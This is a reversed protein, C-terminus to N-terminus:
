ATEGTMPHAKFFVTQFDPWLQWCFWIIALSMWVVLGWDLWYRGAWIGGLQWWGYKAALNQYGLYAFYPGGLSLVAGLTMASPAVSRPLKYWSEIWGLPRGYFFHAILERFTAPHRPYYRRRRSLFLRLGSAWLLCVIVKGTIVM